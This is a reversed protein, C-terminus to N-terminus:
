PKNPEYKPPNPTWSRVKPRALTLLSCLSVSPLPPFSPVACSECFLLPAFHVLSRCGKKLISGWYGWPTRLVRDVCPECPRGLTAGQPGLRLRPNETSQPPADLIQVKAVSKKFIHFYSEVNKFSSLILSAQWASFQVSMKMGLLRLPRRADINSSRM